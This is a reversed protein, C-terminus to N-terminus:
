AEPDSEWEFFGEAGAIRQALQSALSLREDHTGAAFFQKALDASDPDLEDLQALLDKWRPVFLGAQKFRYPLMATVSQALLLDSTVPDRQAIDVADEYLTACLYREYLLSDVTYAPANQLLGAALHRLRGLEPGNEILPTGNALMHATIPRGSAQEEAFYREVQEPPNVFIEAPVGHFFKQLRQRFPGRHIVYLDLDSSADPAGRLISGAAVLGSVDFRALIYAVAERLATNYPESLQPFQIEDRM